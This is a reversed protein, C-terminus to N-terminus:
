KSRQQAVSTEPLPTGGRIFNCELVLWGRSKARRAKPRGCKVVTALPCVSRPQYVRRFRQCGHNMVM